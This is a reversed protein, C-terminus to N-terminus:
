VHSSRRVWDVRYASCRTSSAMSESGSWSDTAIHKSTSIAQVKKQPKSSSRTSSGCSPLTLFATTRPWSSRRMRGAQLADDEVLAARQWAEQARSIQRLQLEIDDRSGVALALSHKTALGLEDIIQVDSPDAVAVSLRGHNLEYPIACARELIHFSVQEIVDQKIEMSGLDVYPLGHRKAVIKPALGADVIAEAVSGGVSQTRV